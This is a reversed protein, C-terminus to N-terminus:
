QNTLIATLSSHVLHYRHHDMSKPYFPLRLLLHDKMRKGQWIGDQLITFSLSNYSTGTGSVEFFTLPIEIDVITLPHIQLWKYYTLTFVMMSEVFLALHLTPEVQISHNQHLIWDLSTAIQFGGDTNIQLEFDVSSTDIFTNSGPPREALNDPLWKIPMKNNFFIDVTSKLLFLPIIEEANWRSNPDHLPHLRFTLLHRHASYPQKQFHSYAIYQSLENRDISATYDLIRLASKPPVDHTHAQLTLPPILYLLFERKGDTLVHDQFPPTPYLNSAKHLYLKWKENRKNAYSLGVLSRNDRIGILIAGGKQHAFAYISKKLINLHKESNSLYAKYEVVTSEPPLNGSQICNQWFTLELYWPVM